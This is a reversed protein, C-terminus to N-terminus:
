TNFIYLQTGGFYNSCPDAFKILKKGGLPKGGLPVLHCSNRTQLCNKLKQPSASICLFLAM